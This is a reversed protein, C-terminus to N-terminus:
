GKVGCVRVPFPDCRQRIIEFCASLAARFSPETAKPTDTTQGRSRGGNVTDLFWTLSRSSVDHCPPNNRNELVMGDCVLLANVINRVAPRRNATLAPILATPSARGTPTEPTTGAATREQSAGTYNFRPVLM